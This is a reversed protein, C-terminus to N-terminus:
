LLCPVPRWGEGGSIFLLPVPEARYHNLLGALRPYSGKAESDMETMESVYVLRLRNDQAALPLPLFFVWFALCTLLQKLLSSSASLM